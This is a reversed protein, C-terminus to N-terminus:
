YLNMMTGDIFVNAVKVSSLCITFPENRGGRKRYYVIEKKGSNEKHVQRVHVAWVEEILTERKEGPRELFEVSLILGM